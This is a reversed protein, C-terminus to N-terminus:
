AAAKATLVAAAKALQAPTAGEIDAGTVQRVHEDLAAVDMGVAEAAKTLAALTEDAAAIQKRRWDIYVALKGTNGSSPNRIVAALNGADRAKGHIAELDSATRAEHAENALNQADKDIEDGSVAAPPQAPRSVQGRGNGNERRPGQNMPRAPTASEFADAASQRYSTEAAAADDDDGDPFVGTVACLCYRRAYTIASGITQPSGESPLPYIGSESEGSAHVLSYALVLNGDQMTPRSMFALGVTGLRPLVAQSVDALDAYQYTYGQNGNRGPIKATEGKAIKPLTAQFAALAEFLTKPMTENTAPADTTQTM